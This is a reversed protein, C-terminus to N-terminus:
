ADQGGASYAAAFAAFASQAGAIADHTALRVSQATELRELFSPWLRQGAGHNLYRTAERVRKSPHRSLRRTLSTAGLRSGELVYLVGFGFADSQIAAFSSTREVTEGFDALDFSLARRRSRQQWDPLASAIAAAELAHEIPFVAAASGRLFAVYGAEDGTLFSTVQTDLKTHLATTAQRLLVRISIEDVINRAAGGLTLNGDAAKFCNEGIQPSISMTM